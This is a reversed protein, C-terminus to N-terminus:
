HPVLSPSAKSFEDSKRIAIESRLEYNAITACFYTKIFNFLAIDIPSSPSIEDGDMMEGKLNVTCRLRGTLNMVVQLLMCFWLSTDEQKLSTDEQKVM